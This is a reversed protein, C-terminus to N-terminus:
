LELDLEGSESIFSDLIEDNFSDLNSFKKAFFIITDIEYRTEHISYQRVLSLLNEERLITKKLRPNLDDNQVKCRHESLYDEKFEKLVKCCRNFTIKGVGSKVKLKRNIVESSNTSCNFKANFNIDDFFNWLNYNFQANENFYYKEFYKEIMKKMKPRLRLPLTFLTITKLHNILIQLADKPLFFSGRLISWIEKLIISNEFDIKGFINIFNKRWNRQIHIICLKIESNPFCQTIANLVAGECDIHLYKPTLIEHFKEYYADKIVTFLEVYNAIVRKRMLSFLIPYSFTKGEFEYLISIIYVQCFSECNKITHFTGDLYLSEFNSFM